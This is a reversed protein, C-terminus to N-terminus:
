SPRGTAMFQECLVVEESSGIVLPVRQHISKAQVELIRQSGTSARGGAQEVVFALPACEYLLRLKGEPHGVDASYLYVGGEMLSRHLDAVLAGTYRLSYAPRRVGDGQTLYEIFRLNNPHWERARALNASYTRGSQPCRISEHSLLFEGLERDLTFGYVGHGCTYVLITSTGYMVYGAAVQQAGPRLIETQLDCGGTSRMYIGFITGLAGNIDTNSSGDLPDICLIYKAEGECSLLKVEELEESVIGAVLGPQAFAEVVADNAFVDLKKQSDGTPNKEGVLGLKGVLAARGIERALIKAAFGLQVLLESLEGAMAPHRQEEEIIHRNLTVARTSM